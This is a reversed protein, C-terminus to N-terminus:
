EKEKSTHRLNTIEFTVKIFKSVEEPTWEKEHQEHIWKAANRFPYSDKDPFMTSMLFSTNTTFEITGENKKSIMVQYNGLDPFETGTGRAHEPFKEIIVRAAQEMIDHLEERTKYDNNEM